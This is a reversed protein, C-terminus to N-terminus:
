PITEPTRVQLTGAVVANLIIATARALGWDTFTADAMRDDSHGSWMGGSSSYTRYPAGIGALEIAEELETMM